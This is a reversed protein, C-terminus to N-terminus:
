RRTNPIAVVMPRNRPTSFFAPAGALGSGAAERTAYRGWLVRFCTRGRFTTPVVWMSGAPRDHAYAEALSPVECALELQVTFRADRDAAAAKQDREARELWDQRSRPRAGASAAPATRPAATPVPRTSATPRATPAPRATPRPSPALTPVVPAATPPAALPPLAAAATPASSPAEVMTESATPSPLAAAVPPPEGPADARRARWYVVAATAAVLLGLIVLLTASSRHRPREVSGVGTSTDLPRQFDYPTGTPEEPVSTESFTEEAEVRTYEDAAAQSSDLIPAATRAAVFDRGLRESETEEADELAADADRAGPGELDADVLEEEAEEAPSEEELPDYEPTPPSPPAAELKEEIDVEPELEEESEETAGGAATEDDGAEPPPPPTTELAAIRRTAAENAADEAEAGVAYAPHVLGLTVLAALLKEVAFAEAPAEAAIEAATSEGDILRVVSEADDTLGFTSFETEFRADRVLPVDVGGLYHLVLTRDRSRLFLELVLRPITLRFEGAERPPKRYFSYDGEIWTLLDSLVEVARIKEGWRWERKTLIGAQLASHARDAGEPVVLRELTSAELKGARVLIAATDFRPDSSSAGLIEGASLEFGSTAGSRSFRLTGSANERWLAVLAALVDTSRIDGEPGFATRM